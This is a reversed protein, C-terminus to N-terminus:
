ILSRALECVRKSSGSDRYLHYKELARLREAEYLDEGSLIKDINEFVESWNACKVGPTAKDYDEYLERDTRLYRELDFPAFIIPRNLLLYDLYAGSYDTILLDVHPLLENLEAADKEQVWHVYPALVNKITLQEANFVPHMKIMFLANHRKLRPELEEMSFGNFLGANDGYEARFTPAYLIIKGFKRGGLIKEFDVTRHKREDLMIDNRPYGTIVVQSLPVGYACAMRESILSSTSTIRDWNELLFPFVTKKLSIVAHYFFSSLTGRWGPARAPVSLDGRGIKKLPIGHWLQIKVARSIAPRNVDMKGNSSIVVAARCSFWFGPLSSALYAEGGSNRVADVVKVSRSLWIARINKENERVYEYVHRSNDAYRKGFWAGFVWINRNRPVCCGIVYLPLSLLIVICSRTKRFGASELFNQPSGM